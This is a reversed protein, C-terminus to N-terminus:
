NTISKFLALAFAPKFQYLHNDKNPLSESQPSIEALNTTEPAEVITEVTEDASSIETPLENLILNVLHQRMEGDSINSPTYAIAISAAKPNIRIDNVQSHKSILNYLRKAYESDQALWPVRFRVRGPVAHIIQYNDSIEPQTVTVVEGPPIATESKTEIEEFVKHVFSGVILNALVARAGQLNLSRTVLMAVGISILAQLLFSEKLIEGIQKDATIKVTDRIGLQQLIALMQALPLINPDFNISLIGTKVDLNVADVGVEQGLQQALIALNLDRPNNSHLQVCGPVSQVVQLDSTANPATQPNM